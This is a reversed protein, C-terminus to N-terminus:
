AGGKKFGRRASENLQKAWRGENEMVVSELFKAQGGPAYDAETHEHQGFAGSATFGVTAINVDGADAAASAAVTVSGDERGWAVVDGNVSAYGSARLGGEAPAREVSRQLCDVAIDMVAERTAEGARMAAQELQKQVARCATASDAASKIITIGIVVEGEDYLIKRSRM